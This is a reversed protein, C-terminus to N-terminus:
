KDLRIKDFVSYGKGERLFFDIDFSFNANLKINEMKKNAYILCLQFEPSDKNLMDNYEYIIKVSNNSKELNLTNKEIDGYSLEIENKNINFEKKRTFSKGDIESLGDIKLAENIVNKFDDLIYLELKLQIGTDKFVLMLYPYKKNFDMIIKKIKKIDEKAEPKGESYLYDINKLSTFILSIDKLFTTEIDNAM